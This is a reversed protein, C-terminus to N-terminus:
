AATKGPLKVAGLQVMMSLMDFYERERYIKGERLEVINAMRLEVSKNTPAIGRLDGKHTGRAVLEVAARTGSDILDKVELKGDPFATAYMQAVKLGADPGQHEQGDPGTYTYDSHLLNRYENWDRRNWADVVQRHIDSVNAM